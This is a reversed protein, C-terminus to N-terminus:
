MMFNKGEFSIDNKIAIEIPMEAIGIFTSNIPSEIVSPFQPEGTPQGQGESFRECVSM